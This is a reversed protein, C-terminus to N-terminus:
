ALSRNIMSWMVLGGTSLMAIGVGLFEQGLPDTFLIGIYNPNLFYMAGGSVFPMMGLVIASTKAQAAMAQGKARLALRKRIVDALGQLTESLAGGTQAQLTLTTAFFKYEAVGSRDAMGKLSEDLAGGISVESEIRAFETATPEPAERAVIRLAEAVPVGVRVSRVIMALVDPLQAQLLLSRRGEIVGIVMRSMLPWILLMLGISYPGLVLALAYCMLRAAIGTGILLVAPHVSYFKVRALDIGFASALRELPTARRPAARAIRRLVAPSRSAASLSGVGAMRLDFRKRNSESYSILVGAAASSVLAVCALLIVVSHLNFDM